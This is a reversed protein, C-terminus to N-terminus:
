GTGGAGDGEAEGEAGGNAGADDTDTRDAAAAGARGGTGAGIPQRGRADADSSQELRFETMADQMEQVWGVLESRMIREARDVLRDIMAQRKQESPPLAYWWARIATLDAAAQNYFTVSTELQRSEILTTYVGVLATTVAVWIQLGIAALFTGIAGFALALARLLRAERELKAATTVYYNVQDDIREKVYDDATLPALNERKEETSAAPDFGLQSVDTRMLGGVASGVAEALKVERPVLRTRAQSYVGARARYRWIERKITESSARLLIWRTGPRFRASAAALAAVMIPLVLIAIYLSRELTPASDLIGARDLVSQGVVLMTVTLGIALIVNQAFRHDRQQKRAAASIIRQQRWAERLTEDDRLDRSLIRELDSAQSDISVFTLDAQAATDIIPDRQRPRTRTRAAAALADALGGTGEIAVIRIGRDAALRVEDLAGSGGGALIAVVPETGALGDLIEFLLSTEGGWEDSSALVFHSHNPELKTASDPMPREDGPFTVKGAPAVGVYLASADSTAAARGLAAMVGSETGGDLLTAGTEGAARVAGREFLRELRTEVAPDLSEAGGIVLLVPRPATLGIAARLADASLRPGAFAAQAVNGNSFDIAVTKVGRATAENM